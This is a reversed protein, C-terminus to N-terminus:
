ASFYKLLDPEIDKPEFQPAYRKVPQGEKDILFKSFNWKIFNGLTGGQKKKLYSWLPHTNDGNVNIKSFMDFQVNYQKIFEKIDAETGPEQGGFQNCPFGLIKSAVNVILAVHGRYKELSVENGDIDLASFDYISKASKWNANGPATAMNAAFPIVKSESNWSLLRRLFMYSAVSVLTLLLVTRFGGCRM